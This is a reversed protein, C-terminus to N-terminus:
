KGYTVEKSIKERDFEYYEDTGGRVSGCIRLSDATGSLMEESIDSVHNLSLFEKSELFENAYGESDFSVIAIDFNQNFTDLFAFEEDHSLDADVLCIVMKPCVHEMIYDLNEGNFFNNKNLFIGEVGTLERGDIYINCVNDINSGIYEDLASKVEDQQYNDKCYSSESEVDVIVTFDKDDHSMQVIIDSIYEWDALGYDVVNGLRKVDPYFGYKERIYAVADKEAIKEPNHKVAYERYSCGTFTCVSMILAVLLKLKKM